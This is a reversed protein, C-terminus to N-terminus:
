GGFPCRALHMNSADLEHGCECTFLNFASPHILNLQFRLTLIFTFYPIWFSLIFPKVVLWLEVGKSSCFHIRARVTSSIFDDELISRFSTDHHTDMLSAYLGLANFIVLSEFSPHM